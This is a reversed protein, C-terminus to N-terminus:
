GCPHCGSLRPYCVCDFEEVGSRIPCGVAGEGCVGVFTSDFIEVVADRSFQYM